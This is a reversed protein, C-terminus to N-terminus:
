KERNFQRLNERVWDHFDIELFKLFDEFKAESYELKYKKCYEIFLEEIAPINIVEDKKM